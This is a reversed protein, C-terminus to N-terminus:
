RKPMLDGNIDVDWEADWWAGYDAKNTTCDDAGVDAHPNFDGSADMSWFGLSWVTNSEVGAPSVSVYHQITDHYVEVKAVTVLDDQRDRTWATAPTPRDVWQTGKGTSNRRWGAQVSVAILLAAMLILPIRLKKM